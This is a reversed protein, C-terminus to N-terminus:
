GNDLALFAIGLYPLLWENFKTVFARSLCLFSMFNVTEQGFRRQRRLHSRFFFIAVLLLLGSFFFLLLLYILLLLLFLTLVFIPCSLNFPYYGNSITRSCKLTIPLSFMNFLSGCRCVLLMYTKVISLNEQICCLGM